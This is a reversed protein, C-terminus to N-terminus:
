IDESCYGDGARGRLDLPENVLGAKQDGDVAGLQKQKIACGQCMHFQRLAPNHVSLNAVVPSEKCNADLAALVSSKSDEPKRLPLDSSHVLCCFVFEAVEVAVVV